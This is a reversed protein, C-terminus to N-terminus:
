YKPMYRFEILLAGTKTHFAGHPQGIPRCIYNGAKKVQGTEDSVLEGEIVYIEECFDHSLMESNHYGPDLKLLRTVLNKNVECQSLIKQHAGSGVVGSTGKPIDAFPKDNANYEAASKM